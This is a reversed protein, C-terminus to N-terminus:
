EPTSPVTPRDQWAFEKGNVEVRAEMVKFQQDAIQISFYGPHITVDYEQITGVPLKVNGNDLSIAYQRDVSVGVQFRPSILRATPQEFWVTAMGDSPEIVMRYPERNDLFLMVDVITYAVVACAIAAIGLVVLNRRRNTMIIRQPLYSPVTGIRNATLM